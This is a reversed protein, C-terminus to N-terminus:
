PSAGGPQDEPLEQQQLAVVCNRGQSKAKYLLLDAQRLLAQTDAVQAICGVGGSLTIHLSKGEHMFAQEAVRARLREALALAQSLSTDPLLILFEEGGWRANMDSNRSQQRLLTAFQVLLADGADHGHNDNIQKFHDLDLLLVSFHHDNRQYRAFERAMQDQIARRNPLGTLTDTKAAREYLAALNIVQQRAERRSYDLIFCFLTEFVITALFRVQFTGDYRTQVFPLQPFLFVVLAFCICLTILLSGVRLSTLFFALPPFLYFWLPGTNNQGGTSILYAFLIIVVTLLGARQIVWSRTVLFVGQNVVMVLAFLLLIQGHHMNDNCWSLAAITLLFAVGCLTLWTLVQSVRRHEEAQLSLTGSKM